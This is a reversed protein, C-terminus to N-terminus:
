RSKHKLVRKSDLRQGLIALEKAAEKALEEDKILYMQVYNLDSDYIM